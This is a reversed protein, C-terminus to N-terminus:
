AQVLRLRLHLQPAGTDAYGQVCQADPAVCHLGQVCVNAQQSHCYSFLAQCLFPPMESIVRIQIELTNMKSSPGSSLMRSVQIHAIHPESIVSGLRKKVWEPKRGKGQQLGLSINNLVPTNAEWFEFMIKADDSTVSGERLKSRNYTNHLWGWVQAWERADM